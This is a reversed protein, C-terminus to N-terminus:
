TVRPSVMEKRVHQYSASHAITDATIDIMFSVSGRQVSLISFLVIRQHSRSQKRADSRKIVRAGMDITSRQRPVELRKHSDQQYFIISSDGTKDRLTQTLLCIGDINSTVAVIGEILYRDIIVFPRPREIARHAAWICPPFIIRSRESPLPVVNTM